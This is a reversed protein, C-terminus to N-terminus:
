EKKLVFNKFNKLNEKNWIDFESNKFFYYSVKNFIM